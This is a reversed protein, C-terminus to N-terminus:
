SIAKFKVMWAPTEIKLNGFFDLAFTESSTDFDKDQDSVFLQSQMSCLELADFIWGYGVDAPHGYESSIEVGSQYVSPFGFDAKSPSEGRNVIVREKDEISNEIDLYMDPDVTILDLKKGHLHSMHLVAYKIAERWTYRWTKTQAEWGANTYDVVLPSFCNYQYDGYDAPFTGTWSGGLAGLATSQGAYSDNPSGVKSGSVLGNVSFWSEVGHLNTSNAYGDLWIQDNLYDSMSDTLIRVIRPFISVLAEKGGKNQLKEFKSVSEGVIFSRYPLGVNFTYNTRQKPVPQMDGHAQPANRRKMVSWQMGTGTHNFTIRGKERLRALVRRKRFMPETLKKVIENITTSSIRANPTLPGTINVMGAM